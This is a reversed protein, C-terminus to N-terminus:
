ATFFSGPWGRFRPLFPPLTASHSLAGSKSDPSCVSRQETRRIGGSGYINYTPFTAKALVNEGCTHPHVTTTHDHWFTCTAEGSEQPQRHQPLRREIKKLRRPSQNRPAVTKTNGTLGLVLPAMAPSRGHAKRIGVKGPKGCKWLVPIWKEELLNYSM